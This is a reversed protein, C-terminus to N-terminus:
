VETLAYNMAPTPSTCFLFCTLSSFIINMPSASPSTRMQGKYQSERSHESPSPPKHTRKMKRSSRGSIFVQLVLNNGRLCLWVRTQKIKSYMHGGVHRDIIAMAIRRRPLIRVKRAQKSHARLGRQKVRGGASLSADAHVIQRHRHLRHDLVHEVADADIDQAVDEGLM